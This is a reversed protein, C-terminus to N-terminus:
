ETPLIKVGKDILTEGEIVKFLSGYSVRWVGNATTSLMGTKTNLKFIKGYYQKGDNAFGVLDGVRLHNKTLKERGEARIDSDKGQLNLMHYRINWRQDDDLNRVLVYKPNKELVIARVLTNIKDDFYSITDGVAFCQRLSKIRAPDNLINEIVVNIRYLDYLSANKMMNMVETFDM